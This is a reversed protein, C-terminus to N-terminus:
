SRMQWIQGKNPHIKDLQNYIVTDSYDIFTNSNPLVDAVLPGCREKEGTIM